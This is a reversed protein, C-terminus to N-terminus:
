IWTGVVSRVNRFWIPHFRKYLPTVDLDIGGLLAQKSWYGSYSEEDSYPYFGASYMDQM